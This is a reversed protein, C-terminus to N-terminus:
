FEPLRRAVNAYELAARSWTHFVKRSKHYALFGRIYSRPVQNDKMGQFIPTNYSAEIIVPSLSIFLNM